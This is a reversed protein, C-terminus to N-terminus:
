PRPRARGRSTGQLYRAPWPEYRSFFEERVVLLGDQEILRYLTVDAGEHSWEVQVRTGAPLSSDEEFVPEGAETVNSITPAEMTIERASAAGYFRVCLRASSEQVEILILIPTDTDNDFCFDVLPAFVAADLGVPAGNQEYWGVRYIHPWRELIPYGAWFAARFSATSVQGVGGSPGRTTRDGYALWPESYGNAVTVLGLNDLFSFTTQPPVTLGHFRASAAQIDQLCAPRCGRFSSQGVSILSLPLLRELDARAVRPPVVRVPLAVERRSSLCAEVVRGLAAEVDLEHGCQGPVLTLLANAQADYDFRAERPPRAIEGALGQLYAEIKNRDVAVRFATGEGTRLPQLTLWSALVGRDVCWRRTLTRAQGSPQYEQYEFTLSLPSSLIVGVQERAGEVETLPPAM